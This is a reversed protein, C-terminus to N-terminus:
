RAPVARSRGHAARRDDAARARADCDRSSQRPPPDAAARWCNAWRQATPEALRVSGPLGDAYTAAVPAVRGREAELHGPSRLRDTRRDTQLAQSDHPRGDIEWM